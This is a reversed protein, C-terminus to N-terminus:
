LKLLAQGHIKYVARLSYNLEMAIREWTMRELYRMSLVLKYVGDLKEIAERARMKKDILLDIDRTIEEELSVIKIILQEQRGGAKSGSSHIGDGINLGGVSYRSSKLEDLQRLKSNILSDLYIIEKLEKKTM